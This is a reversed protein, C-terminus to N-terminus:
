IDFYGTAFPMALWYIFIVYFVVTLIASNLASKLFSFSGMVKFLGVSVLFTSIVYGLYPIFFWYGFLFGFTLVLSIITKRDPYEVQFSEGKIFFVLLLGLVILLGGVLGPLTHDGVFTDMRAPYLRVAESVAISGFIISIIGGIRDSAM